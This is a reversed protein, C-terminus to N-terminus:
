PQYLIVVMPREKEWKDGEVRHVFWTLYQVTLDNGSISIAKPCFNVTWHKRHMFCWCNIPQRTNWFIKCGGKMPWNSMTTGTCKGAIGIGYDPRTSVEVTAVVALSPCIVFWIEHIYTLDPWSPIFENADAPPTWDAIGNKMLIRQGGTTRRHRPHCSFLLCM